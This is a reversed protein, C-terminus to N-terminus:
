TDMYIEKDRRLTGVENGCLYRAGEALANDFTLWAHM